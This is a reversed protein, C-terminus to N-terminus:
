NDNKQGLANLLLELQTKEREPHLFTPNLEVMSKLVFPRRHVDTHPVDLQDSHQVTRNYYLLDLDIVRDPSLTDRSRGLERELELLRNLVEVPGHKGPDIELVQNLFSRETSVEFPETELVSSRLLVTFERDLVEDARRLNSERDGLNSGIGVYVNSSVPIM